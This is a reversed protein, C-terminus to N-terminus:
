RPMEAATRSPRLLARREEATMDPVTAAIAKQQDIFEQAPRLGDNPKAVSQRWAALRADLWPFFRGGDEVTGGAKRIDAGLWTAFADIAAHDLAYAARARKAWGEPISLVRGEGLVVLAAANPDPRHNFPDGYTKRGHATANASVVIKESPSLTSLSSAGAPAVRTRSDGSDEPFGNPNRTSDQQIGATKRDRDAKRKIEIEAKTPNYNLFDHIMYGGDVRHWLGAAVLVAPLGKLARPPLGPILTALMRDEILGDTLADRSYANGSFWLWAADCHGTKEITEALKPHTRVRTEFKMWTAM